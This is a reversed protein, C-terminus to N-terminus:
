AVKKHRMSPKMKTERSEDKVIFVVYKHMQKVKEGDLIVALEM